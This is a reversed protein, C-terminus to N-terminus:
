LACRRGFYDVCRDSMYPVVDRIDDTAMDRLCEMLAINFDVWARIKEARITGDCLRIEITDNRRYNTCNVAVYRSGYIQSMALASDNEYDDCGNEYHASNKYSHGIDKRDTIDCLLEFNNDYFRVLRALTRIREDDDDGLFATSYHVHFGTTEADDTESYGENILLSELRELDLADFADRTHPQSIIEFGDYLSCDYEYFFAGEFANEIEHATHEHEADYGEVEIEVGLTRADSRDGIVSYCGKHEHWDGIIRSQERRYDDACTRCMHLDFDYDSSRRIYDGCMDCYYFNDNAYESSYYYGDDASVFDGRIHLRDDDECIRAIYGNVSVRRCIPTEIGDYLALAIPEGNIYEGGDFHEEIPATCRGRCGYRECVFHECEDCVWNRPIIDYQRDNTRDKM